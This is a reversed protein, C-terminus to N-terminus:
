RTWHVTPTCTVTYYERTGQTTSGLVRHLVELARHLSQTPMTCAIGWGGGGPLLPPPMNPDHKSRVQGHGRSRLDLVSQPRFRNIRADFCCARPGLLVLPGRCPVLPAACAVLAVVCYTHCPIVSKPHWSTEQLVDRGVPSLCVLLVASGKAATFASGATGRQGNPWRYPNQSRKGPPM